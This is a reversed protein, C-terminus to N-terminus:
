FQFDRHPRRTGHKHCLLNFGPCLKPLPNNETRKSLLLAVRRALEISFADLRERKERAIHNAPATFTMRERPIEGAAPGIGTTLHTGRGLLFPPSAIIAEYYLLM